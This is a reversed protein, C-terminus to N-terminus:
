VRAFVRAGSSNPLTGELQDGSQFQELKARWEAAKTDYGMGPEAAHWAEYLDVLSKVVNITREHKAGFTAELLGHAELLAAEAETYRELQSLTEGHAGLFVAINCHGEPLSRRAGEAAEAGLAEAEELRELDRLLCGMNHISSLTHPHDSGHVRRAGDLAERYYPLAEEYKSM